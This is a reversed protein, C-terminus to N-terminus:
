GFADRRRCLLWQYGGAGTRRHVVGGTTTFKGGFTQRDGNFRGGRSARVFLSTNDNAKLLGGLTWSKYSRTYNVVEAPGNATM